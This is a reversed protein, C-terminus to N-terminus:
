PLVGRAISLCDGGSSFLYFTRGDPSMYKTPIDAREGSGWKTPGCEPTSTGGPWTNGESSFVTQWPGWPQASVLVTLGGHFRTGENPTAPTPDYVLSLMFRKIGPNWSMGARPTFRTESQFLIPTATSLSPCWAPTSASGCFYQWNEQLTLDGRAGRILSFGPVLQYASNSVSGSGNSSMPIVAYVYDAPGGTYGQGFQVFSAYGIEPLSWDVWTFVPTGSDYNDSFKLRIGTSASINRIWYWLRGDAHLMGAAKHSSSDDGVAEVGAGLAADDWDAPDGTPVATFSVNYAEDGSIRGFGM